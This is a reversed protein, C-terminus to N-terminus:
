RSEEKSRFSRVKPPYNFIGPFHSTQLNKALTSKNIGQSTQALYESAAFLIIHSFFYQTGM